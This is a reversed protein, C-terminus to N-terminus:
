FVIRRPTIYLWKRGASLKKKARVIKCLLNSLSKRGTCTSWQNKECEGARNSQDIMPQVIRRRANIFRSCFLFSRDSLPAGVSCDRIYYSLPFSQTENENRRAREACFIFRFSRKKAAVSAITGCTIWTHRARSRIPTHVSRFGILFRYNM